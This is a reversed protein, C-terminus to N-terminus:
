LALLLWGGFLAVTKRMSVPHSLLNAPKTLQVGFPFVNTMHFSSRKSLPTLTSSAKAKKTSCATVELVAAV